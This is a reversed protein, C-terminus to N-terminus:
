FDFGVITKYAIAMDLMRKFKVLQENPNSKILQNVVEIAIPIKDFELWEEEYSDIIINCRDNILGFVGTDYLIKHQEESLVMEEMQEKKSDWLLLRGYSKSGKSGQNIKRKGDLESRTLIIIICLEKIILDVEAM